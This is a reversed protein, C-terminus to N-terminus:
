RFLYDDLDELAEKLEPDKERDIYQALRLAEWDEPERDLTYSLDVLNLLFASKKSRNHTRCYNEIVIRSYEKM